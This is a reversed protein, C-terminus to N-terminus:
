QTMRWFILSAAAFGAVFGALWSWYCALFRIPDIPRDTDDLDQTM